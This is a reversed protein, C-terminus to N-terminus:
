KEKKVYSKYTDEYKKALKYEPKVVKKAVANARKYVESIAEAKDADSMAKYKSSHILDNVLKYSLQGKTEAYTVYEEATLYEDCIKDSQSPRKPVVGTQGADLLRRIEKDAATENKKSVYAPNAFNNLARIWVSGTEEHRGWADIYPIQQYEGPTKNMTKGLLYQINKPVGGTKDTFTTEREHEVTREIQGFLTPVGQSLYSVGANAAVRILSGGDSFKVADIADQLSQLMSMEMLPDTVKLAAEEINQLTIGGDKNDSMANHLEVGMFFPLAEPALWDLTVSYGGPLELAYDQGGTMDHLKDKENDGGGGSVLGVSALWAGLVLLGTGTLGSSINDIAEAATMSGRKVQVLDATLGKLLGVPSYELGRALINAPTRKFPLVGEIATNVARGVKSKGKYGINAIFDSIANADRYTAKQAERIAYARAENMVKIDVTGDTIMQATIGNAKLYGALAGAYAPKSFLTDEVDLATSNATRAAELPKLKFIRRMKDIQGQASQAYKGEGLLQGEVNAIDQYCARVLDGDAGNLRSLVPLIVGKTRTIGNGGVHKSVFNAANEIGWALANKVGRVPAFFANGGMNRIHTRPNGLMSLYRWANWKDVFRSPIQDAVSQYINKLAKDQAEVDTGADLFAQYLADDVKIVPAKDGLRKNLDNQFAEMSRQCAYLKGEPSLKKLIRQAQLSQAATTSMATYGTLIDIVVKSDVSPANMANNLLLQGLAVMDKSLKGKKVDSKWLSLAGEWGHEEVAALARGKAGKDTNTEFSFTGHAIEEQIMGVVSDPTAQAETVTAASKPINRGDFDHIPVDVQRARNEGDPHFRSAPTQGQLQDYPGAFGAAAAGVSNPMGDGTEPNVDQATQPISDMTPVDGSTGLPADSRLPGDANGTTESKFLPTGSENTTLVEHLKYRQTNADKIVLAGVYHTAGDVEVPASIFISDYSHGGYPGRVEIIKGDKLVSPLAAFTAAKLKGYGHATSDRAGAGTLAIDGIDPRTVKNGLSNFFEMVKTRLPRTDGAQKQFESGTLRAVAAMNQVENLHGRVTDLVQGHYVREAGEVPASKAGGAPNQATPTDVTVDYGLRSDVGAGTVNEATHSQQRRTFHDYVANGGKQLALKGGAMGVGSLFGGAGALSVQGISDLTARLGAEQETLGQEEYARISAALGSRDGMVMADSLINAVETLMEESAEVGGQAFLAKIADKWGDGFDLNLISEVSFKEFVMEATGAALGGWFAQENSGGREIIEKTTNAASSLGMVFTAGSGLTSVQLASDAMSMGTNYLFSAVNQGFLEWDTNEEIQKSVTGRIAQVANTAYMDYVNAPVYSGLDDANSHGVGNGWTRVADLGQLPSLFVSVGSSAVPHKEADKQWKEQTKAYAEQQALMRDYGAMTEFDYGKAALEEVLKAKQATLTRQLTQLDYTGYKKSLAEGAANFRTDHGNYSSPASLAKSLTDLDATLEKASTYSIKAAADGELKAFQEQNKRHYHAAALDNVEDQKRSVAMRLPALLKDEQSVWGGSAAASGPIPNTEKPKYRGASAAYTSNTTPTAEQEVQKSLADREAMATKHRQELEAASQGLLGMWAPAEAEKTPKETKPKTTREPAKVIGAQQGAAYPTAPTSPTAGKVGSIAAYSSPAEKKGLLIPSTGSVKTKERNAIENLTTKSLGSAAGYSSAVGNRALPALLPSDSVPSQERQATGQTKKTAEPTRLHVPATVKPPQATTRKMEKEATKWQNPITVKPVKM